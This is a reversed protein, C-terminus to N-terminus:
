AQHTWFTSNSGWFIQMSNRIQVSIQLLSLGTFDKFTFKLLHCKTFLRLINFSNSLFLWFWSILLYQLFIPMCFDVNFFISMIGPLCPNLANKIAHILAKTYAPSFLIKYYKIFFTELHTYITNSFKAFIGYMKYTNENDSPKKPWFDRFNLSCLWFKKHVHFSM